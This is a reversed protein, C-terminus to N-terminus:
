DILCGIPAESGGGIWVIGEGSSPVRVVEVPSATNSGRVLNSFQFSSADMVRDHNADFAVPGSAGDFRVNGLESLVSVGERPDNVRYLAMAMAVVSDYVIHAVETPRNAFLAATPTFLASAGSCDEPTVTSWVRDLKQLSSESSRWEFTLLGYLLEADAPSPNTPLMQVGDVWIWAYGSRLANNDQAARLVRIIHSGFCISVFVRLGTIGCHGRCIPHNTPTIPQVCGKNKRRDARRAPMLSGSRLIRATNTM